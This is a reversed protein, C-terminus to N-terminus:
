IASQTRYYLPSMARPIFVCYFVICYNVNKKMSWKKKRVFVNALKVKKAWKVEIMM